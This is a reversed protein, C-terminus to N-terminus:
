NTKNNYNAICLVIILIVFGLILMSFGVIVRYSNPSPNTLHCSGSKTLYVQITENHYYTDLWYQLASNYTQYYGETTECLMDNSYLCDIVLEYCSLIDDDDSCFSQVIQHNNITCQVSEVDCSKLLVNNCNTAFLVSGIIFL